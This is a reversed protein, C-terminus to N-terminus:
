ACMRGRIAPWRRGPPRNSAGRRSASEASAADSRRSRRSRAHPLPRGCGRQGDRLLLGVPSQGFPALGAFRVSEAMWPRDDEELAMTLVIRGLGNGGCREEFRGWRANSGVEDGDELGDGLRRRRAKSTAELPLGYVAVHGAEILSPRHSRSLPEISDEVDELALRLPQRTWAEYDDGPEVFWVLRRERFGIVSSDALQAVPISGARWAADLTSQGADGRFTRAPRNARAGPRAPRIVGRPCRVRALPCRRPM